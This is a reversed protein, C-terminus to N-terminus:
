EYGGQAMSLENVFCNVGYKVGNSVPEGSHLMDMDPKGDDGVNRWYVAMGKKPKVKLGLRSFYTEGGEVGDDNLYVFVTYPRFGGDHHEAFFEDKEYKVLNLCEVNDETFKGHTTAAVRRELRKLIVSGGKPLVCSKSTRTKSRSNSSFDDVGKSGDYNPAKATTSHKWGRADANQLLHDIEENSIFDEIITLKPHVKHAKLVKHYVLSQDQGATQNIGQGAAERADKNEEQSAKEGEVQRDQQQLAAAPKDKGAENKRRNEAEGSQANSRRNHELEKGNNDQVTAPLRQQLM